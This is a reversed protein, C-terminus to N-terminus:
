EVFYLFTWLSNYIFSWHYVNATSSKRKLPLISPLQRKGNTITLATSQDSFTEAGWELFKRFTRMVMSRRKNGLCCKEFLVIQHKSIFSQNFTLKQWHTWHHASVVINRAMFDRKTWLRGMKIPWSQVVKTTNIQCFHMHLSATM